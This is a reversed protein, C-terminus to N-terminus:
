RTEGVYVNNTAEFTVSVEPFDELKPDGSLIKVISYGKSRLKGGNYDFPVSVMDEPKVVVQAITYGAFGKVYSWNGVHLGYSCSISPDDNVYQAQTYVYDGEKQAITRTHCDVFVDNLTDLGKYGIFRGDAMIKIDNHKLFEYLQGFSDMKDAANMRHVLNVLGNLTDSTGDELAQEYTKLILQEYEMSLHISGLSFMDAVEDYTISPALNTVHSMTNATAELEDWLGDTALSLLDPLAEISTRVHLEKDGAYFIVNVQGDLAPQAMYTIPQVLPIVDAVQQEDEKPEDESQLHPTFPGGLKRIKQWYAYEELGISNKVKKILSSRAMKLEAALDDWSRKHEVYQLGLYQLEAQNFTNM